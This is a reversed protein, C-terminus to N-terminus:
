LNGSKTILDFGFFVVILIIENEKTKISVVEASLCVLYEVTNNEMQKQKTEHFATRVHKSM